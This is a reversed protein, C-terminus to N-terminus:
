SLSADFTVATNDARDIFGRHAPLHPTKAVDLYELTPEVEGAALVEAPMPDNFWYVFAESWEGQTSKLGLQEATEVLREIAASM